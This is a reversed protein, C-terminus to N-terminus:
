KMLFELLASLDRELADPAAETLAPLEVIQRMLQVGAILALLMGATQGADRGPLLHMLPPLFHQEIKKRLIAAAQPDNASRLMILFGDMPTAHPTTKGVLAIALARCLAQRDPAATLTEQRLIGPASFAADVVEEFLAEKTGFYRNILMATVGAQEAIERVGAAYGSQTFAERAAELIAQRTAAGKKGLAKM